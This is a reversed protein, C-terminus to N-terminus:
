ESVDFDDDDAVPYDYDDEESVQIAYDVAKKERKKPIPLPPELLEVDPFRIGAEESSLKDPKSVASDKLPESEKEEQKEEKPVSVPEKVSPEEGEEETAAAMIQEFPEQAAALNEETKTGVADLLDVSQEVPAKEKERQICARVNLLSKALLALAFVGFPIWLFPSTSRLLDMFHPGIGSVYFQLVITYQIGFSFSVIAALVLFLVFTGFLSISERILLEKQRFTDNETLVTLMLVASLVLGAPHLFAAVAIAVCAETLWLYPLEKWVRKRSIVFLGLGWVVFYLTMPSFVVSQASLYPHLMALALALVGVTAGFFHAVAGCLLVLALVQVVVQATVGALAVNGFLFYVKELFCAYLYEAGAANPPLLVTHVAPKEAAWELVRQYRFFGGSGVLILAVLVYVSVFKKEFRSMAGRFDKKDAM